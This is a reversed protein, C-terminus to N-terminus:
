QAENFFIYSDLDNCAEDLSFCEVVSQNIIHEQCVINQTCIGVQLVFLFACLFPWVCTYGGWGLELAFFLVLDLTHGKEHTLTSVHQMLHFSDTLTLFVYAFDCSSDNISFDLNGLIVLLLVWDFKIIM